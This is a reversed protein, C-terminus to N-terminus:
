STKVNNVKNVSGNNKVMYAEFEIDKFDKQLHLFMKLNELSDDFLRVRKFQGAKLYNHVIIMKQIASGQIDKIKGAREIRINDIDLGHQRFTDLFTERDDFDDRATIIIVKSEPKNLVNKLIAKAKAFMKQIPKSEEKFKKADRFETFDPKENKSIYDYTNHEHPKLKKVVKGNKKVVVRATTKFLTNDIDFITLGGGDKSAEALFSKFKLM